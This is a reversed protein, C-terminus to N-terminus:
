STAAELYYRRYLEAIRAAAEPRGTNLADQLDALRMLVSEAAEAAACSQNQALLHRTLQQIQEQPPPLTSM